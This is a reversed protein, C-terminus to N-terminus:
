DDICISDSIKYRLAKLEENLENIEYKVKKLEFKAYM